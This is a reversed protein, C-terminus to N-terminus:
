SFEFHLTVMVIEIAGYIQLEYTVLCYIPTVEDPCM